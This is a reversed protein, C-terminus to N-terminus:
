RSTSGSSMKLLLVGATGGRPSEVVALGLGNEEVTKPAPCSRRVLGAPTVDTSGLVIVMAVELLVGATGDCPPKVVALGFGKEEVPELEPSLGPVVNVAIVDTSGVVVLVAAWSEPVPICGLVAVATDPWVM